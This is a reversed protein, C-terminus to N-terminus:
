QSRMASLIEAKIQQSLLADRQGSWEKLTIDGNEFADNIASMRNKYDLIPDSHLANKPKSPERAAFWLAIAIMSVSVLQIALSSANITASEADESGFFIFHYGANAVGGGQYLIAFPPFALMLLVTIAYGASIKQRTSSEKAFCKAKTMLATHQM